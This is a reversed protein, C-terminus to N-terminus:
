NLKLATLRGITNRLVSKVPPRVLSAFRECITGRRVQYRVSRTGGMGAYLNAVQVSTVGDFDFNLGKAHAHNIAARLLLKVAGAHPAGHAASPPRRTTMWYYYSTDDWLCAVAADIEGTDRRCAATVRAQGRRIAEILLDRAISLDAYPKRRRMALHEAYLQTFEAPQISSISLARDATRLHRKSMRSLGREWITAQDRPIVFNDESEGVFGAALFLRFDDENSLTLFYSRNSPLRNILSEAIQKRRERDVGADVIPGGVRAWPLNYAQKMGLPNRYVSCSFFGAVNQDEVVEVRLTRGKAAIATFWSQMYVPIGESDPASESKDQSTFAM